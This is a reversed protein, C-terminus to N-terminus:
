KGTSMVFMSMADVLLSMPYGFCTPSSYGHEGREGREGRGGEGRGRDREGGEGDGVM